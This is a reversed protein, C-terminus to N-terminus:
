VLQGEFFDQIRDFPITDVQDYLDVHDAGVMIMPEKPEAAAAYADESFDRSCAIRRQSAIKRGGDGLSAGLAGHATGQECGTASATRVFM